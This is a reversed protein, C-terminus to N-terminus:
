NIRAHAMQRFFDLEAPTMDKPLQLSATVYLDGFEGAKDYVPMGQGKLRFVKGNETMAPVKLKVGGKLTKIEIQKGIVADQTELPLTTHLDDGRRELLPHPAVHIRLYFDGDPGGNQGQGGKGALKIVKGEAIGPKFQLRLKKENLDIIKKAGQFAEELSIEVDAQYENGPIPRPKESWRGRAGAPRGRMGGGGFFTEFFDGSQGGGGFMDALDDQTFTHSQGGGARGRSEQSFGGPNSGQENWASGLQDYRQRKVPDALVEHAENIEKFKDEASKKGPNKDPHYKAALKRYAKKVAAADAGKELGLIKYYDKFDM